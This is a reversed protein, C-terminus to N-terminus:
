EAPTAAESYWTARIRHVQPGPDSVFVGSTVHITRAGANLSQWHGHGQNTKPQPQESPQFKRDIVPRRDPERGALGAGQDRIQRHSRAVRGTALLERGQQPSATRILLRALTQALRQDQQALVQFLRIEDPRIGIPDLEQRPLPPDVGAFELAQRFGGVPHFKRPRGAQEAALEEGAEVQVFLSKVLPRGSLALADLARRRPQALGKRPVRIKDGIALLRELRDLPQEPEIRQALVPLPEREREIRAVAALAFRQRM